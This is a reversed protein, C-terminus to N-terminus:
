AEAGKKIGRLYAEEGSLERKVVESITDRGTQGKHQEKKEM